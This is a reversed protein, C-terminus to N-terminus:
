ILYIFLFIDNFAIQDDPWTPVFFQNKLKVFLFYNNLCTLIQTSINQGRTQKFLGITNLKQLYMRTKKKWFCRQDNPSMHAQHFEFDVVFFFCFFVQHQKSKNKNNTKIKKKSTICKLNLTVFSNKKIFFFLNKLPRFPWFGVITFFFTKM